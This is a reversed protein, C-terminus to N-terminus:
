KPNVEHRDEMEDIDRNDEKDKLRHQKKQATNKHEGKRKRVPSLEAMLYSDLTEPEGFVNFIILLLEEYNEM